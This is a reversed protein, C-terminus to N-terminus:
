LVSSLERLNQLNIEEHRIHWSLFFFVCYSLQLNLKIQPLIFAIARSVANWSARLFQELSAPPFTLIYTINTFPSYM